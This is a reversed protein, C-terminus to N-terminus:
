NEINEKNSARISKTLQVISHTIKDEEIMVDETEDGDEATDNNQFGGIVQKEFEVLQKMFGPNPRAISRKTRIYDLAEYVGMTTPNELNKDTKKSSLYMMLYAMCLTVSRSVGFICHVLAKGGCEENAKILDATAQVIFILYKKNM